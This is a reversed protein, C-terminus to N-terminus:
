TRPTSSNLNWAFVQWNLGAAAMYPARILDLSNVIYADVVLVNKSGVQIFQFIINSGFGDVHNKTANFQFSGYTATQITQGMTCEFNFLAVQLPLLQGLKPYAKPAGAVPFYCNFCTKLRSMNTSARFALDYQYTYGWAPDMIVPYAIKAVDEDLVQTLVSDHWEYHTKLSKGQSDLAWAEAISGLVTNGSELLFNPGAKLFQTDAPVSFTYDFRRNKTAGSIVTLIRFGNGTEQAVAKVNKDESDLVVTSNQKADVNTAYDISLSLSRNGGNEKSLLRIEDSGFANKAGSITLNRAEPASALLGPAIAQVIQLTRSSDEAHAAPGVIVSAAVFGLSMGWAFIKKM